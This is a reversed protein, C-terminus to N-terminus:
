ACHCTIFGSIPQQSNANQEQAGTRHCLIDRLAVLQKSSQLGDLPNISFLRIIEYLRLLFQLSGKSRCGVSRQKATAVIAQGEGKADAYPVLICLFISREGVPHGLGKPALRHQHRPYVRFQSGRYRLVHQAIMAIEVSLYAILGYLLLIGLSSLYLIGDCWTPQIHEVTYAIKSKRTMGVTQYMARQVFGIDVTTVRKDHRLEIRLSLADTGQQAVIAVIIILGGVGGVKGIGKNDIALSLQLEAHSLIHWRRCGM